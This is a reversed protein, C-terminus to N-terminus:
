DDSSGMAWALLGSSVGGFGGKAAEKVEEDQEQEDPQAAM